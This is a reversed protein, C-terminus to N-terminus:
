EDEGGEIAINDELETLWEDMDLAVYTPVDTLVEETGDDWVVNVSWAMIKKSMMKGKMLNM